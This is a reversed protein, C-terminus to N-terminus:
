SKLGGTGVEPEGMNELKNGRGKEWGVDLFCKLINYCALDREAIGSGKYGRHSRIREIDVWVSGCLGIEILIKDIKRILHPVM